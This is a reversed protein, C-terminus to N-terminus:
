ITVEQSIAETSESDGNVYITFKTRVRYTEGKVVDATNTM